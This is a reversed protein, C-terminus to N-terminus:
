YNLMVVKKFRAISIAIFRDLINFGNLHLNKTVKIGFEVIGLKIQLYIGSSRVFHVTFAFKIIM